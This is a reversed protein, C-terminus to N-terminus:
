RVTEIRGSRSDRWAELSRVRGDVGSIQATQTAQGERLPLIQESTVQAVAERSAAVAANTAIETVQQRLKDNWKEDVVQGATSRTVAIATAAALLIAGAFLALTYSARWPKPVWQPDLPAMM